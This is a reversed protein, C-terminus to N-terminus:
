LKSESKLTKAYGSSYYEQVGLGIGVCERLLKSPRFYESGPHMHHFKELEGLIKPLGVYNDAWFM